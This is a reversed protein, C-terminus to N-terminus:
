INAIANNASYEEHKMVNYKLYAQVLNLYNTPVQVPMHNKGLGRIEIGTSVDLIHLLVGQM